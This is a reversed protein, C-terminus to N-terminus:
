TNIPGQAQRLSPFHRRKAGGRRQAFLAARPYPKAKHGEVLEPVLDSTESKYEEFPSPVLDSAYGLM